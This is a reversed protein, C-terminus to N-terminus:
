QWSPQKYSARDGDRGGDPEKRKLAAMQYMKMHEDASVQPGSIPLQRSTSSLREDRRGFRYWRSRLTGGNFHPLMPFLFLLLPRYVPGRYFEPGFSTGGSPPGMIRPSGTAPVIPYSQEGRGSLVSPIAIASYSNSPPAFWSSFNGQEAVNMRLGPIPSVFQVNNKARPATETPGEEFGPGNNLDFDRSSANLGSKPICWVIVILDVVVFDLPGSELCTEDLVNLDIDLRPRGKKSDVPPSDSTSIPMELVKRPEAPRFASTAASGKWGLEGKSKLLNEPPFFPGKAASAVTVSAPFSPSMSSVPFPLPCLYVPSLHGPVSSKAVEGQSGDDVPFSENLDFDLKVSSGGNASSSCEGMGGAETEDLRVRISKVCQETQQVPNTSPEEHPTPGDTCRGSVDKPESKEEVCEKNQGLNSSSLDTLQKERRETQSVAKSEIAKEDKMEMCVFDVSGSPITTADKEGGISELHSNATIPPKEETLIGRKDERGVDLCSRSPSAENDKEVTECASDEPFKITLEKVMWRTEKQLMKLSLVVSDDKVLGPKGDSKLYSGFANRQLDGSSSNIQGSCEETKEEACISAVKGDATACDNAGNDPLDSSQATNDDFQRSKTDNESCSDEPDSRSVDSRSVEGAAVSALLNMGVDDGGGLATPSALPSAAVKSVETPKEGDEATRRDSCPVVNSSANGEDMNTNSAGSAKLADDSKGKVKIDHHDLKESEASPSVKVVTATPDEFSSGNASPAPSRGTNPLRVILRHSSGHEVPSVDTARDHNGPQGKLLLNSKRLRSVGGSMKSLNVSGATSSRGRDSSSSQSNNQSHSSSSSKEEKITALPVDSSGGGVLATSNLEKGSGGSSIVSAASKTSSTSGLKDCPTKCAFSQTPGFTGGNRRNNGVHSVESLVSRSPWSGGRSSGSKADIINMEAEVRKKWTDVLSRAKKQIESHKHSRLQNVSKGVNCTQLAHLNVPLKDLARLSVLLFEEVSGDSEKQNNVEGIKGKHVEQLWEDLVPLGRLQLFWGLCDFNDTVTIVGVLMLRCALDLKREATGPQMLQVFKEVGEFDVLGGNHTIKAIESRLINDPSLQGCDTDDGRSVRERKVPDSAQEGRDRKKGKVQSPLPSTSNHVSESGPRLQQIGSQGNLPKPSRGESQAAGYMELRTKDLLQDVEEQRENTYDKDTLWWLCKNETDYVRRCVFSSIGSPLEVGKRLFTVKCPHLLSAAPIEDRHFSYFVENPAAEVLTTKGLKGGGVCLRRRRGDGGGGTGSYGGEGRDVFM